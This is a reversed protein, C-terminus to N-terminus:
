KPPFLVKELLENTWEKGYLSNLMPKAPDTSRRYELYDRQHNTGDTDEFGSTDSMQLLEIYVDLHTKFAEWVQNQIVSIPDSSSPSEDQDESPQLRTWLAYESVYKKVAEPFDGGWTFVDLNNLVHKSHWEKWKEEHPNPIIMPQADLLLLNRGGPLTVLDIGLVPLNTKDSPIVVFNLVQIGDTFDGAEDVDEDPITELLAVRAYSVVHKYETTPVMASTSIQVVKKGAKGGTAPACNSLLDEPINTMEQFIESELLRSKAHDAFKRYLGSRSSSDNSNTADLISAVRRIDNTQHSLFAEVGVLILGLLFLRNGSRKAM